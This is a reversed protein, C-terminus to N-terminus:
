PADPIWGLDTLYKWKEIAGDKLRVIVDRTKRNECVRAIADITGQRFYRVLLQDPLKLAARNM